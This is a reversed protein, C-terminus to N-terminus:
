NKKILFYIYIIYIASIIICFFLQILFTILGFKWLYSNYLNSDKKSKYFLEFGGWIMLSNEIIFEIIYNNKNKPKVKKKKFYLLISLIVYQWLGNYIDYFINYDQILSFIGFVTYPIFAIKITYEYDNNKYM